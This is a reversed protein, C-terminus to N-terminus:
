LSVAPRRRLNRSQRHLHRRGQCNGVGACVADPISEGSEYSRPPKGDIWPAFLNRVAKNYMRFNPGQIALAEEDTDCPPWIHWYWNRRHTYSFGPLFHHEAFWVARYGLRDPLLVQEVCQDFTPKVGAESVDSTELEFFLSLEM